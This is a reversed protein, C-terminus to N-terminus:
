EGLGRSGDSRRQINVIAGFAADNRGDKQIWRGGSTPASLADEPSIFSIRDSSCRQSRVSPTGSGLVGPPLTESGRRRGRRAPSKGEVRGHCFALLPLLRLQLLLLAGQRCIHAACTVRHRQRHHPPHSSFVAGDDEEEDEEEVEKDQQAALMPPQRLWPRGRGKCGHGGAGTAWLVSVCPPSFLVPAMALCRLSRSLQPSHVYQM